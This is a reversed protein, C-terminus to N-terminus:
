ASSVEMQCDPKMEKLPLIKSNDDLFNPGPLLLLFIFSILVFHIYVFLPQTHLRLFLAPGVPTQTLLLFLFLFLFLFSLFSSSPFFSFFPSFPFSSFSFLPHFSFFIFLFLFSFLENQLGGKEKEKWKTPIIEFLSVPFFEFFIPILMGRETSFLASINDRGLRLIENKNSKTCNM